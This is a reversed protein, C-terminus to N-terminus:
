ANPTLAESPKVLDVRVGLELQTELEAGSGHATWLHNVYVPTHHRAKGEAINSPMSLSSKRIQYGLVYREERPFRRALRYCREALNMSKQWVILSRFNMNDM